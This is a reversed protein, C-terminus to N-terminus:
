TWNALTCAVIGATETRLISKGIRAELLGHSRAFTIESPSFDGEPGILITIESQNKVLKELPEKSESESCHAMIGSEQQEIFAKVPTLDDLQPLFVQKSQKMASVLVKQIRDTKLVRRESHECLIPVIRDIGIEVAKEAFWELRALNKTPAIAMTIKKDSRRDQHSVSDITLQCHKAHGLSLHAQALDGKGNVVELTDGEKMRLVKFLHKSEMEPVEIVGQLETPIYSRHGAM